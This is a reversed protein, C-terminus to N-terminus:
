PDMTDPDTLMVTSVKAGDTSGSESQNDGGESPQESNGGGCAALSFVMVASLMAALIRKKM